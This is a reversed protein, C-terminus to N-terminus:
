AHRGRSAQSDDPAAVLDRYGEESEILKAVFPCSPVIRLGQERAHELAFAVLRSAIGRGRLRQPVYTHYYDLVGEGAPRYELVGEAGDLGAVFRRRAPEHSLLM